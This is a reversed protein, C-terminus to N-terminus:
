PIKFAIMEYGSVKEGKGGWIILRNGPELIEYKTDVKVELVKVGPPFLWYAEYDYELTEAEYYEEYVNRGRHLKGRFTITFVVSPRVPTGRFTVDVSEVQPKSPKGNIYIEEEDLYRQMNLGLRELEGEFLEPKSLLDMYYHGPDYYDFVLIQHFLGGRCVVFFGQAYIPFVEEGSV